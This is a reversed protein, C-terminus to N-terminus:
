PHCRSKTSCNEEFKEYFSNKTHQCLTNVRFNPRSKHKM